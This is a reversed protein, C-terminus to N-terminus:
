IVKDEDLEWPHPKALERKAASLMGKKPREVVPLVGFNQEAFTLVAVREDNTKLRYACYACCPVFVPEVTDPHVDVLVTTAKQACACSVRGAKIERALYTADPRCMPCGKSDCSACIVIATDEKKEPEKAHASVWEEYDIPYLKKDTRAEGLHAGWTNSSKSKSFDRAHVAAPRIHYGRGESDVCVLLKEGNSTKTYEFVSLDARTRSQCQSLMWAFDVCSYSGLWPWETKGDLEWLKLFIHHAMQENDYSMFMKREFGLDRGITRLNFRGLAILAKLDRPAGEATLVNPSHTRAPEASQMLPAGESARVKRLHRTVRGVYIVDDFFTNPKTGLPVVLNTRVMQGNVGVYISAGSSADMKQSYYADKFEETDAM